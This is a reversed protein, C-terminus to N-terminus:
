GSTPIRSMAKMKQVVRKAGGGDFIKPATRRSDRSVSRLASLLKNEWQPDDADIVHVRAHEALVRAVAAELSTSPVIVCPVDLTALEFSTMGGATVAVECDAMVEVPDLLDRHVVCEYPLREVLDDLWAAARSLTSIMVHVTPRDDAASGALAGIVRRLSNGADTGGMSVFVSRIGAGTPGPSSARKHTGFEPRVLAYRPGSLLWCSDPVLGEYDNASRVLAQSLLIDADRMRSAHDDIVLVREASQRWERDSRADGAYDDVVVWEIRRGRGFQGFVDEISRAVEIADPVLAHVADSARGDPLDILIAPLHGSARLARGLTVCRQLHGIGIEEGVAPLLAVRM